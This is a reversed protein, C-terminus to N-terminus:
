CVGCSSVGCITNSRHLLAKATPFSCPHGGCSTALPKRWALCLQNWGAQFCHWQQICVALHGHCRQSFMGLFFYFISCPLQSLSSCSFHSSFLEASVLTLLSPSFPISWASYCIGRRGVSFVVTSCATGRCDMSSWVLCSLSVAAEPPGWAAAPAGQFFSCGMSLGCLLLNRAAVTAWSPGVSSCDKGSPSYGM